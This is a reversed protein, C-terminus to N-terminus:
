RNTVDDIFGFMALLVQIAQDPSIFEAGKAHENYIDCITSIIALWIHPANTAGQGSGYIPFLECHTYYDDSIDLATKLQYKAEELTNAHVFTADHSMGKKCAILSSINLLIYDYCSAANTQVDHGQRGGHLGRNITGHKESM